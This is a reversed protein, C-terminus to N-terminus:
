SWNCIEGRVIHTIEHEKCFENHITCRLGPYPNGPLVENLNPAEVLIEFTGRREQEWSQRVKLFKVDDPLKIM